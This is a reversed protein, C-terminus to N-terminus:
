NSTPLDDLTWETPDEFEKVKLLVFDKSYEYPKLLTTMLQKIEEFLKDDKYGSKYGSIIISYPEDYFSYRKFILDKLIKRKIILKDEYFEFGARKDPLEDLIFQRNKDKSFPGTLDDLIKALKKTNDFYKTKIPTSDHFTSQKKELFFLGTASNKILGFLNNNYKFLEQSLYTKAYEDKLCFGSIDNSQLTYFFDSIKYLIKVEIFPGETPATSSNISINTQSDSYEQTKALIKAVLYQFFKRDQDYKSESDLFTHTNSKIIKTESYPQLEEAVNLSKLLKDQLPTENLVNLVVPLSLNDIEYDAFADNLKETRFDELILVPIKSEKIQNSWSEKDGVLKKMKLKGLHPYRENIIKLILKIGSPQILFENYKELLNLINIPSSAKNSNNPMIVKLPIDLNIRYAQYNTLNIADEDEVFDPDTSQTLNLYFPPKYGDDLDRGTDINFNNLVLLNLDHKLKSGYKGQLATTILNVEFSATATFFINNINIATEKDQSTEELYKRYSELLTTDEEETDYTQNKFENILDLAKEKSEDYKNKLNEKLFEFFISIIEPKRDEPIFSSEEFVKVFHNRWFDEDTNISNTEIFLNYTYYIDKDEQSKTKEKNKFNIIIGSFNLPKEESSYLITLKSINAREIIATQASRYKTVNNYFKEFLSEQKTADYFISETVEISNEKDFIENFTKNLNYITDKKSIYKEDEDQNSNRGLLINSTTEKTDNQNEKFEIKSPKKPSVEFYDDLIYTPSTTPTPKQYLENRSSEPSTEKGIIYNIKRILEDKIANKQDLAIKAISAKKNRLDNAYEKSIIRDRAALAEETLLDSAKEIFIKNLYKPTSWDYRFFSQELVSSYLSKLFIEFIQNFCEKKRENLLQIKKNRLKQLYNYTKEVPRDDVFIEPKNDMLNTLSSFLKKNTPLILQLIQDELENMEKLNKHLDAEIQIPIFGLSQNNLIKKHYEHAIEEETPNLYLFFQWQKPPSSLLLYNSIEALYEIWPKYSEIVKVGPSIAFNISFKKANNIPCSYALFEVLAAEEKIFNIFNKNEYFRNDKKLVEPIKKIAHNLFIGEFANHLNPVLFNIKSIWKPGIFSTIEKPKEFFPNTELSINEESEIPKNREFSYLTKPIVEEDEPFLDTDIVEDEPNECFSNYFFYQKLLIINEIEQDIITDEPTSFEQGIFNLWFIYRKIETFFDKAIKPHFGKAQLFNKHFFFQNHHEDKKPVHIEEKSLLEFTEIHYKLDEPIARTFNHYKEIYDSYTKKEEKNSFFSEYKKSLDKMNVSELKSTNLFSEMDKILNELSDEDTNKKLFFNNKFNELKKEVKDIVEDIKYASYAAGISVGIFAAAAIEPAATITDSTTKKLLDLIKKSNSLVDGIGPEGIKDAAKEIIKKKDSQAPEQKNREADRRNKFSEFIGKEPEKGDSPSHKNKVPLIPNILFINILFANLLLALFYKQMIKVKEKNNETGSNICSISQM